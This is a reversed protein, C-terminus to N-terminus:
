SLVFSEQIKQGYKTIVERTQGSGYDLIRLKGKKDLCFNSPNRFHHHDRRAEKNTIEDLQQWLDGTKIVCLKGMKQINIFGFFSFYTPQLFSNRAKCFFLFEKWNAMMGSFLLDRYGIIGCNMPISMETYIEKLEIRIVHKALTNVTESFHVIPLKIVIGLSSFLFVFRHRGKKFRM